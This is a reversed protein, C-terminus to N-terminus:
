NECVGLALTQWATGNHELVSIIWAKALSVDPLKYEQLDLSLSEVRLALEMLAQAQKGTDVTFDLETFTDRNFVYNLVQRCNDSVNNEWCQDSAIEELLKHTKTVLGDVVEKPIEIQYIM